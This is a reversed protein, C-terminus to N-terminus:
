EKSLGLLYQDHLIGNKLFSQTVVGLVSLGAEKAYRLALRNFAPVHTILKMCDTNLFMWAILEQAAQKAVQGRFRPLICTHVEYLIGNHRQLTYLGATEGDAVVRLFLYANHLILPAADLKQAPPSLDDSVLHYISPHRIVANILDADSTPEVRVTPLM